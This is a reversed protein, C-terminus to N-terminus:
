WLEATLELHRQGLNEKRAARMSKTGDENWRTHGQFNYIKTKNRKDKPEETSRITYPDEDCSNVVPIAWQWEFGDEPGSDQLLRRRGNSTNEDEM